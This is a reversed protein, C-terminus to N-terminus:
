RRREAVERITAPLLETVAEHKGLFAAAGAARARNRTAEDDAVSMMIVACEPAVRRVLGAVTIGDLYPMAIDMLVVDPYLEIVVKLAEVGDQAEGVVELDDELAIRMRLASRVAPHDDVLVIRIM